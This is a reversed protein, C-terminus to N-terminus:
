FLDHKSHIKNNEIDYTIIKGDQPEYDCSATKVICYRGDLSLEISNFNAYFNKSSLKGKESFFHLRSNFKSNMHYINDAIVFNGNDAIVANYPNFITEHVLLQNNKILIIRGKKFKEDYFCGYEIGLIYVGSPSKFYKGFFDLKKVRLLDYTISYDIHKESEEKLKQKKGFLRKFYGNIVSGKVLHYSFM